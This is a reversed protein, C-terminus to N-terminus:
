FGRRRASRARSTSASASAAPCNRRSLAHATEPPLGIESLLAEARALREARDGAGAAELAQTVISGVRRRPNLASQPDQFVMQVHARQHARSAASGDSVDRGAIAIAGASPPELGCLM